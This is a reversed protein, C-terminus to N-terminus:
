LGQSRGRDHSRSRSVPAEFGVAEARDRWVERLLAHLPESKRRAVRAGRDADGGRQCGLGAGECLGADRAQADLVCRVAGQRLGRNRLEPDPGGDGAPDFVGREILNRALRDRYYAGILRANRHLAVPDVSKWRGDADRTVNAIVAHTHLQPDRNRSAIHRFTAAAMFPAKVRPRRRTAPDWGRTELLTEEVWDLTARVAEDHARIVARDGKPHRATPLLGALSVSKPASFTLDFGPRHEHQGDRRRGLRIDTGLVHGQLLKEFKGAAVRAGPKLGLAASGKGHWASAERHEERKARLSEADDDSGVYYGGDARFYESTASSSTLNRITAVM